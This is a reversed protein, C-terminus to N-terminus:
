GQLHAKVTPTADVAQKMHMLLDLALDRRLERHFRQNSYSRLCAYCSTDVGCGCNSVRRIAADVVKPFAERVKNTIGAGGPVTDFLVITPVGDHTAMTGNLDDRNIELAESAAEILAYMAPRWDAYDTRLFTPVSIHTIDTQYTHGLSRAEPWTRCLAQTRPNQHEKPRASEVPAAFGCTDCYWYGRQNSGTELAGMETRESYRILVQAKELSERDAYEMANSESGFKQVFEIRGWHRRPPTMGVNRPTKRAVFGYTPILFKKAATVSLQGHCHSCEDGAIFETMSTQIHHCHPCETWSWSHLKKGPLHRIGASEWLHGGAVVQSGPAYDSIALLLDRSLNIKSGADSFNTQLDVTDVPFSYKPLLNKKALYGLLHQDVLTRITFKYADATTGRGQSLLESRMGSLTQYDDEVEEAVNTFLTLYDKAWGGGSLNLPEHLEPPMIRYLADTIEQPVPSLYEKLLPLGKEALSSNKSRVLEEEPLFFDAIRSWTRERKAQERLFSAFAVSFAHRKAIRDNEIKIFPATMDGDIMSVPDKFISMDHAGRKAFTLVFAASGTRRGARGARQVYNATRPPVNRLMVSQLDGVDVGLEFTTSCSLVNIDGSIFRKQVEAAETPTWQATHEKASLPVMEMHQALNRYHNQSVDPDAPDVTDLAGPCWGNPCLGRINFATVTRCTNCAFWDHAAGPSVFLLKSDLAYNPDKPDPVRLIESRVLDEWILKLFTDVNRDNVGAQGLDRLVKTILNKRNNTGRQPIWSFVRKKSDRGGDFRFTQQGTRPAFREDVFDVYDPAIVAGKHRVDQVLINVFDRAAREDGSFLSNLRPLLKLRTMAEPALEVRALGMGETSLRRTTSALDTFVWLGVEGLLEYKSLRIPLARSKQALQGARIIWRELPAGQSFEEDELTEVLIRRELLRGYSSELYPAAYAAAQRSDSFTLLKRGAGVKRASEEDAAEPLLQFLSTTLVAPAANADTLLRRILDRARGGCVTCTELKGGPKPLVRVSILEKRQCRGNRCSHFTDDMLRGCAVCLKSLPPLEAESITEPEELDDEDLEASQAEESLVVWHPTDTSRTSDPPVLYGDDTLGNVHVAGCKTCTGLEYAPRDTGTVTIQRDLSIVPEGDERFGLYAGEAARVFMHYRAALVPVGSDSLVVSGLLVLMHARHMAEEVTVDPWLRQGVDSLSISHEALMARIEVIHREESLVDYPERPGAEAHLANWLADDGIPADFLTAPLEWTPKNPRRLIEARVLDQRLPNEAIYEFPEGFLTTGFDMIRKETGELSASTAICQLHRDRGVRDKLRRLLMAVETGQAGAYVHAEDLVIFRWQNSYEDDFFANDEPRLLLYELMAYNTLLIHPPTEQMQDRSILENPLSKADAGNIERYITEADQLTQKTEGTYRGFTIEPKDALLERLRKLQDNALANMPYLLLARVGPGLTGAAQERLLTDIIPILFSETKGSGTGTSVILNRGDRVKKLAREQHSYLPRQLSFVPSLSRFSDHLIGQQILEEATAGPAYPPTLQLIPGKNLNPAEDVARHFEQAIRSNSPRLMTKLYRRYDRIISDSAAVPDINRSSANLAQLREAEAPSLSAEPLDFEEPPFLEEFSPFDENSM